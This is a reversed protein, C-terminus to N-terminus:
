FFHLCPASMSKAMTSGTGWKKSGGARDKCLELARAEAKTLPSSTEGHRGLFGSDHNALCVGLPTWKQQAKLRLDRVGKGWIGQSTGRFDTM